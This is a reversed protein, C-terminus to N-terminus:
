ASLDFSSNIIGAPVPSTHSLSILCILLINELRFQIEGKEGQYPMCDGFLLEVLFSSPVPALREALYLIIHPFFIFPALGSVTSTVKLYSALFLGATPSIYIVAQALPYSSM